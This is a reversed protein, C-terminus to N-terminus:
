RLPAALFSDLAFLWATLMVPASLLLVAIAGFTIVPAGVFAVMLQPMAKNIVGLTLNYLASLVVFPAALSFALAFSRAVRTRGADALTAADPFRFPPLLEYSLLFFQAVKIHFGTAMLLAFGAITLLTGIAPMPEVGTQGMLQSLSTSQAAISGATQLALVFLRLLLGLFLGVVTETGLARLFAALTLPWDGLRDHLAPALLLSLALTLGLRMRVSVMREGFAPLVAFAAGIRLLILWVTWALAGLADVPLALLSM